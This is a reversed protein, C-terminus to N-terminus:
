PGDSSPTPLEWLRPMKRHGTEHRILRGQNALVCLRVQVKAQIRFHEALSPPHPLQSLVADVIDPTAATRDPRAALAKLIVQSMRGAKMLRSQQPRISQLDSPDIRIEHLAMASEIVGLQRKLEAIDTDLTGLQSVLLSRKSEADGVRGALRTQKNILWKLSSPTSKPM